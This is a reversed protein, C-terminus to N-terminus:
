PNLNGAALQSVETASLARNYIRVDDVSGPWFQTSDAQCGIFCGSHVLNWSEPASTKLVGDAYLKATTGDYTLAIFHWNGDWFGPSTLDAGQGGGAYLTTGNMGLFMAEGYSNTGFSAFFLYGGTTNTAKAWGCLTRPANGSPLSSPNGMNVCQNSGNFSLSGADTFTIASPKDTTFTPGNQWIGSIGNGSSDLSPGSTEDLKWYAVLGSAQPLLPKTHSYNTAIDTASLVYNYVQVEDITGNLFGGSIGTQISGVRFKSAAGRTGTPGTVSTNLVGDIYIQMAGTTTNRTAVVQHWNGDNIATTSTLTTDPNGIGFSFKGANLATGWDAANAATYADVLGKGAYWQGATGTDSTAVWMSISFTGSISKPITAYTSTGNFNVAYQGMGPVFTAGYNAGNYSATM